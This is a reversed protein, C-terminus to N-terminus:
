VDFCLYGRWVYSVMAYRRREANKKGTAYHTLLSCFVQCQPEALPPRVCCPSLDYLSVDSQGHLKEVSRRNKFICHSAPSRGGATKIRTTLILTNLEKM